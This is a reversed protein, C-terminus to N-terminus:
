GCEQGTFLDEVIESLVFLVTAVVRLVVQDRTDNIAEFLQDEDRGGRLDEDVDTGM